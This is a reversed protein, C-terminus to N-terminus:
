KLISSLDMKIKDNGSENIHDEPPDESINNLNFNPDDYLKIHNDYISLDNAFYLIRPTDYKKIYEKLIGQWDIKNNWIEEQLIRIISIGREIARKMKFIDKKQSEEPSEWKKNFHKFHQEGDIELIINYDPFYFDFSYKIRENQWLKNYQHIFIYNDVILFDRVLKETKNKCKNCWRGYFIKLPFAEFDEHCYNCNFLYKLTNTKKFVFRPNASNKPSWYKAKDCSAFSKNFCFNCSMDFCLIRSCQSCYPCSINNCTISSIQQDYSHGCEKCDFWYKGSSGLFVNRPTIEGNKEYSWTKSGKHSAFSNNYCSICDNNKCLKRHSCYPCWQNLYNINCPPIRFSHNCIDCDFWFHEGTCTFIDRPKINGNKEISWYKSKEHSAFSKNFCLDCDRSCLLQPPHCCYSCNMNRLTYKVVSCFVHDCKQCRFSLKKNSGLSILRTNIKKDILWKSKEHSMLSNSYCAACSYNNCVGRPIACNINKLIYEKEDIIVKDGEM